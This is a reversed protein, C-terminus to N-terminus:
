HPLKVKDNGREKTRLNKLMRTNYRDAYTRFKKVLLRHERSEFADTMAPLVEVGYKCIENKELAETGPVKLGSYLGYALFRYDGNNFRIDADDEPSDIHMPLLESQLMGYLSTQLDTGSCDPMSEVLPSMLIIFFLIAVRM